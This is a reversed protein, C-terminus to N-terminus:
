KQSGEQKKLAQYCPIGIFASLCAIYLSFIILGEILPFTQVILIGLSVAAVAIACIFICATIGAAIDLTRKKRENM